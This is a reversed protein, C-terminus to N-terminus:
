PSVVYFTEIVEFIYLEGRVSVFRREVVTIIQIM